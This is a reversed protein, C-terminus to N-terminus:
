VHSQETTQLSFIDHVTLAWGKGPPAGRECRHAIEWYAGPFLLQGITIRLDRAGEAFANTPLFVPEGVRPMAHDAYWTEM